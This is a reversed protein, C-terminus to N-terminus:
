WECSRPPSILDHILFVGVNTQAVVQGEAVRMKSMKMRGEVEDRGGGGHTTMSELLGVCLKSSSGPGVSRRGDNM